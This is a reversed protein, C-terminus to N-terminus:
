KILVFEEVCPEEPTSRFKLCGSLMPFATKLEEYEVAAMKTCMAEITNQDLGASKLGEYIPCQGIKSRLTSGKKEFDPTIGSQAVSKASVSELAALNVKRRGLEEKLLGALQAGFDKGRNSHLALAKELGIEQSLDKFLAGYFSFSASAAKFASKNSM